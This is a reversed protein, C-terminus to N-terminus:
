LKFNLTSSFRGVSYVDIRPRTEFRIGDGVLFKRTGGIRHGGLTTARFIAHQHRQVQIERSNLWVRRSRWSAGPAPGLTQCCGSRSCEAERPDGAFQINGYPLMMNVEVESIIIYERVTVKQIPYLCQFVCWLANAHQDALGALAIPLACTQVGTVAVDRIGDEAQFFFIVVTCGCEVANMLDQSSVCMRSTAIAKGANVIISCKYM